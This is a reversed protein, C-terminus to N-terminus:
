TQLTKKLDAIASELEVQPFSRYFRSVSFFPEPTALVLVRDGYEYLRKILEAPAVPACIWIEQPQQERLAKAAVSITMGTAIGDDVLIAIRGSATVDPRDRFQELQEKAKTQARELAEQWGSLRANLSRLVQGDATVAGIALEPDQPRTIKKAVLIDLPCHLAEAIAAGIGVGGRPLAYVIYSADLSQAEKLALQALQRGADARDDFLIADPSLQPSFM